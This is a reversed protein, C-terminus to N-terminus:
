PNSRAITVSPADPDTTIEMAPGESAFDEAGADLADMM